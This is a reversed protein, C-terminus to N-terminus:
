ESASYVWYGERKERSVLGKDHLAKLARQAARESRGTAREVDKSTLGDASDWVLKLIERQSETPKQPRKRSVARAIVPMSIHVSAPAHEEAISPTEGFVAKWDTWIQNIGSGARDSAGVFGFIRMLTPNRAESFGGAIAVDRDILFSGTNTIDLIDSTLVVKVTASNGYYAHVLANTLAENASETVPNRSGHGTGFEDTSFPASLRSRFRETVKLYFDFVNGSWTDTQSVIRHDWRSNGSVKEQYDLLFRPLDNTIQYEYGFALLGAESPHLLGDHGKAAAGIHFLFDETSDSNWPSSPKNERFAERYRQVTDECLADLSFRVLPQRDEGPEADYYMLRLDEESAKQDTSGRRVWAVPKKGRRDYVTVPKDDREARPVTIVVFDLEDRQVIRVGDALTVDRSVKQPNRVTVWFTDVQEQPNAVGVPVFTQNAADERVGLVIEGGETNAFASYTEWIDEPLAGAAEKFELRQSEQYEFDGNLFSM